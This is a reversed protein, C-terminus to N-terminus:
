GFTSHTKVVSAFIGACLWLICPTATHVRNVRKVRKGLCALISFYFSHLEIFIRVRHMCGNNNFLIHLPRAHTHTHSLSNKGAKLRHPDPSLIVSQYFQCCKWLRILDRGYIGDFHFLAIKHRSRSIRHLRSYLLETSFCKMSLTCM